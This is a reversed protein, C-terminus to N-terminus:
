FIVVQNDFLTKMTEAFKADGFINMTKKHDDKKSNSYALAVAFIGKKEAISKINEWQLDLSEKNAAVAALVPLHWGQVLREQIIVKTKSPKMEPTM